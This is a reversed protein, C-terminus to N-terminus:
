GDLLCSGIVSNANKTQPIACCVEHSEREPIQDSHCYEADSIHAASNPNSIDFRLSVM